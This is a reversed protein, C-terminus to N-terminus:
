KDSLCESILIMIWDSCKDDTNDERFLIGIDISVCFLELVLVLVLMAYHVQCGFNISIGM